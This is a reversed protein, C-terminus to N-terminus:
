LTRESPRGVLVLRRCSKDTCVAHGDETRYPRARGSSLIGVPRGCRECTLEDTATDETAVEAEDTAAEDVETAPCETLGNAEHVFGMFGHETMDYRVPLQCHQCVALASTNPDQQTTM